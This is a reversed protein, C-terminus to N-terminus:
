RTEVYLVCNPYYDDVNETGVELVIDGDTNTFQIVDHRYYGDEKMKGVVHLPENFLTPQTDSLESISYSRYGDSTDETVKYHVNDLTFIVANRDIYKDGITNYKETVYEAGMLLHEGVLNKLDIYNM